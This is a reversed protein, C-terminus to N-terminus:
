SILAAGNDRGSLPRMGCHSHEIKTAAYALAIMDAPSTRKASEAERVAKLAVQRKGTALHILALRLKLRSSFTVLKDAKEEMSLAEQFRGWEKDVDSL